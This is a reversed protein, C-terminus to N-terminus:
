KRKVPPVNGELKTDQLKFYVVLFYKLGTGKAVGIGVQTSSKWIMNVFPLAPGKTQPNCWQHDGITSYWSVVCTQPLNKQNGTFICFNSSYASNTASNKDQTVAFKTAAQQAAKQINDNALLPGVAHLHRFVNIYTM